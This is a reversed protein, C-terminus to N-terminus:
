SLYIANVDVGFWEQLRQRENPEQEGVWFWKLHEMVTFDSYRAERLFELAESENLCSQMAQYFDRATNVVQNKWFFM